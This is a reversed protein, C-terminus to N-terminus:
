VGNSGHVVEGALDLLVFLLELRRVADELSDDPVPTYELDSWDERQCQHDCVHDCEHMCEVRTKAGCEYEILHKCEPCEILKGEGKCEVETVHGCVQGCRQGCEEECKQNKEFEVDVQVVGGDFEEVLAKAAVLIQRRLEQVRARNVARVPALNRLDREQQPPLEGQGPLATAQNTMSLMIGRGVPQGSL